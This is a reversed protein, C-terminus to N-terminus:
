EYGLGIGGRAAFLHLLRSLFGLSWSCLVAFALAWALRRGCLRLWCQLRDCRSLLCCFPGGFSSPLSRSSFSRLLPIQRDKILIMMSRALPAGVTFEKVRASDHVNQKLSMVMDYWVKIEITHDM